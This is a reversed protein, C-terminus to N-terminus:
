LAEGSNGEEHCAFLFTVQGMHIMEEVALRAETETLQCNVRQLRETLEDVSNIGWGFSPLVPGPRMAKEFEDLDSM